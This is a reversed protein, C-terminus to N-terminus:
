FCDYNEKLKICVKGTSDLTETADSFNSDGNQVLGSAIDSSRRYVGVTNVKVNESLSARNPHLIANLTQQIQCMFLNLNQFCVFM